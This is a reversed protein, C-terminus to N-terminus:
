FVGWDMCKFKCIEGTRRILEFLPSGDDENLRIAIETARREASVGPADFDNIDGELLNLLDLYLSAPVGKQTSNITMFLQAQERVSLSRTAIVMLPFGPNAEYSGKVRHQGDIIFGLPKVPDLILEGKTQDYDHSDGNLNVLISNPIIGQEENIYTKIKKIRTTSFSRQYGLVKDQIRQSVDFREYIMRATLIFVLMQQHNQELSFAPVVISNM